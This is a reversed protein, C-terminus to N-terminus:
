LQARVLLCTFLASVFRPCTVPVTKRAHTSVTSFTVTDGCFTPHFETPKIQGDYEYERYQVPVLKCDLSM